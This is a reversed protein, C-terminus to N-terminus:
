ASTREAIKKHGPRLARRERASASSGRVRSREEPGLRPHLIALPQRTKRSPAEAVAGARPRWGIADRRRGREFEGGGGFYLQKAVTLNTLLVTRVGHCYTCLM